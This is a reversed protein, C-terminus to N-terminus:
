RFKYVSKYHWWEGNDKLWNEKFVSITEQGGIGPIEMQVTLRVTVLAHDAVENLDVKYIEASKWRVARGGLSAKYQEITHSNRYGKTEFLYAQEWDEEVLALWRDYARSTLQKNDNNIHLVSACSLQFLIISFFLFVRCYIM